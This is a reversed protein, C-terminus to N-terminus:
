PPIAIMVHVHDSMLHREEIRREKQEALRRLVRRSEPAVACVINKESMESYVRRPKQLGVKHPKSKTYGNM